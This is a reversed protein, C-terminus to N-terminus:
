KEGGEVTLPYLAELLQIIAEAEDGTLGVIDRGYTTPGEKMIIINGVITRWGVFAGYLLSGHMNLPLHMLLGDENVLMCYPEPLAKPHVIEMYGGIVSEVSKYLPPTFERITAVGETTVVIGKM